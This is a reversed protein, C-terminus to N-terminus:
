HNGHGQRGLKGSREFKHIEERRAADDRGQSVRSRIMRRRRSEKLACRATQGSAPMGRPPPPRRNGVQEVGHRWQVMAGGSGDRCAEARCPRSFRHHFQYGVTYM